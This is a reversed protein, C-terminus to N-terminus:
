VARQIVIHCLRDGRTQCKEERVVHPSEILQDIMGQVVGLVFCGTANPDVEAKDCFACDKIKIHISGDDNETMVASGWGAYYTRTALVDLFKQLPMGAKKEESALECGVSRAMNLLILGAGSGFHKFLGKRIATWDRVSFLFFRHKYQRERLVGEDFDFYEELKHPFSLIGM